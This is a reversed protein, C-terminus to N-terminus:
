GCKGCGPKKTPTIFSVREAIKLNDLYSFVLLVGTM